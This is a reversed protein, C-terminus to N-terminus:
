QEFSKLPPAEEGPVYDISGIQDKLKNYDETPYTCVLFTFKKTNDWRPDFGAMITYNSPDVPPDEFTFDLLLFHQNLPHKEDKFYPALM